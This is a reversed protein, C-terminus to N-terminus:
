EEEHVRGNKRQNGGCKTICAEEDEFRNANGLFLISTKFSIHATKTGNCGGYIFEECRNTAPNFYFSRFMARCPGTAFPLECEQPRACHVIVVLSCLLILLSFILKSM